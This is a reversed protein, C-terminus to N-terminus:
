PSPHNQAAPPAYQVDVEVANTRPDPAQLTYSITMTQHQWRAEYSTPTQADFTWSGDKDPKGNGFVIGAGQLTARDIYKLGTGRLVLKGQPLYAVAQAISPMAPFIRFALAPSSFGGAQTVVASGNAGGANSTDITATISDASRDLHAVPVDHGLGDRVTISQVCSGMGGNGDNFSLTASKQGEVVSVANADNLKWQADHPEVVAIEPSTFLDFGWVSSIRATGGSSLQALQSQSLDAHYGALPDYFAPVDFTDSPTKFKVNHQRFYVPLGSFPVSADFSGGALCVPLSPPAGYSPEQPHTAQSGIQFYVVTSPKAASPDYHLHENVYVNSSSAGPKLAGPLFTYDAEVRRRSLLQYLGGLLMGYTAANISLQNGLMTTVNGTTPTQYNSSIAQAACAYQTSQAVSQTFCPADALDYGFLSRTAAAVRTHADNMQGPQIGSLSHMFVQVTSQKAVASATIMASNLFLSRNNLESIAARADSVGLGRRNGNEPVLFILPTTNGDYPVSWVYGPKARSLDADSIPFSPPHQLYDDYMDAVVLHWRPSRSFQVGKPFSLQIVDGTKLFPVITAPLVTGNRDVNVNVSAGLIDFTNSPKESPSQAVGLLLVFAIAPSLARLPM